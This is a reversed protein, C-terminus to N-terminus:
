FMAKLRSPTMPLVSYTMTMYTTSLENEVAQAKEFGQRGRAGGLPECDVSRQLGPNPKARHPECDGGTQRNFSPFLM